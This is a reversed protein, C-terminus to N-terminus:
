KSSNNQPDEVISEYLSVTAAAPEIDLERKLSELCRQYTRLAQARNGLSIYATMMLRYAQEWCDDRALISQCIEVAEEWMERDILIRALRDATRLYLTLMREREESAWEEYLCDQLYEGQFLGTAERYRGLAVEPNTKFARDGEAVLREFHETDLWLDAGPRLGYLTGDRIVYASPERRSRDPELVRYLTSLAVQFDRRATEPDLEPWLTEMIQDRDLLSHRKTLMLQFLQKAKERRWEQLTVEEEGRWVRFQGLTQVRLQYGPHTEVEALGLQSLINGVYGGQIGSDRAKLLLPVLRRPDPPGLLAKRTFLFDYGHESVLWLLDALGRELRASYGTESWILCQWLRVLAQGFTDSCEQYATGAQTLWDLAIDYQRDLAYGAGITFRILAVIWEDGVGQGLEIGMDAVQQASDIERRFGHARCLGWYAEVKLRPVELSDSLTIAADFCRCAEKFREPHDRILWAHGQRMYSVATIFPSDLAQGREIGEVACQYAEEARGQFTLILSLLLLTERHSRPQPVPERREIVAQRELLRRAEDLRGTRLLVRAPLDAEGPGEERLDRAQTRCREAEEAQGQNLWNEAMLDMLRARTERDEQGDSLRLAEMLLDEAQSPNVTDLYVRAQGRLTRGVGRLDGQARWREEAQRYWGLAEEFRSHLRAIDGLYVFLIPHQEIVDVPLASIWGTLTDFRGVRLMDQGLQDLISAAEEFASAALLHFIAEEQEGHQECCTASNRHGSKLLEPTLQQCLFDRFLHHYRLHGGGLDSIFLGEELLYNLIQESDDMNRLCDCVPATLERLTATVLLFKQVDAPQQELVEQALYASLDQTSSSVRKLAQPLTAVAGSQLGQLVLQLAIAWGETEAALGEVDEPAPSIDCIDHFLSSIEDLTFALEEQKIELVDGRVRWNVLTPLQPTSRTSIITCLNPPRRGILRDVIRLPRDEESSFDDLVLLIPENGAAALESMLADVVAEWPPDGGIGEWVELLALPAESLDPLARRFGHVLHQLLVLPDSDETDMQYWVLPYETDALAALATSKGYGAGAQVVTLRYDLAELLRQTLRPRQLIRSHLRPPTLKTWVVLSQRYV